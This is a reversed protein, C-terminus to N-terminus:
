TQEFCSGTVSMNGSQSEAIDFMYFDYNWHEIVEKSKIKSCFLISMTYSTM